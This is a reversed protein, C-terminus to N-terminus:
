RPQPDPLWSQSQFSSQFSFSGDTRGEDDYSVPPTNASDIGQPAPLPKWSAIVPVFRGNCSAYDFRWLTNGRIAATKATRVAHHRHALHLYKHCGSLIQSRAAAPINLHLTAM